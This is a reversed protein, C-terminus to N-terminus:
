QNARLWRVRQARDHALVVGRGIVELPARPLTAAVVERGAAFVGDFFDGYREAEQDDGAAVVFLGDEAAGVVPAVVVGDGAHAPCDGARQMADVGQSGFPHLRDIAALRM